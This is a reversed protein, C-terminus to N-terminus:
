SNAPSQSTLIVYSQPQPQSVSSIRRGAVFDAESQTKSLGASGDHSPAMGPIAKSRQLQVLTPTLAQYAVRNGEEDYVASTMSGGLHRKQTTELGGPDALKVLYLKGPESM